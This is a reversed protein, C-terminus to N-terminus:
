LWIRVSYRGLTRCVAQSSFSHRELKTVRLPPTAPQPRLIALNPRAGERGNFLHAAHDCKLGHGPWDLVQGFPAFASAELPEATIEM